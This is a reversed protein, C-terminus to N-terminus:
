AIKEPCRTGISAEMKAESKKSRFWVEVTQYWIDELRRPCSIVLRKQPCFLELHSWFDPDDHYKAVIDDRRECHAGAHVTESNEEPPGCYDWIAPPQGSGAVRHDAGAADIFSPQSLLACPETGQCNFFCGVKKGDYVCM